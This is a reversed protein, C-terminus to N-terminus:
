LSAEIEERLVRRDDFPEAGPELPRTTPGRGLILLLDRAQAERVLTRMAHRRDQLIQISDSPPVARLLDRLARGPQEAGGRAGQTVIVRDASGAAIAGM